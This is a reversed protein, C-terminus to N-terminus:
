KRKYLAREKSDMERATIPRAEGKGLHTLVVLLHRGEETRGLVLYRGCRGRRVKPAVRCAQEVEEPSVGHEAIHEENEYDWRFRTIRM